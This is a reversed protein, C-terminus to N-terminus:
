KKNFFRRYEPWEALDDQMKYFYNKQINQKSTGVASAIESMNPAYGYKKHFSRIYRLIKTKM